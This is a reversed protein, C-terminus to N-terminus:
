LQKMIEKTNEYLKKYLSFYTDYVSKNNSDPSTNEKFKIWKKIDQSDHFVGTGLGALFADGLPAEVDQKTRKMTYGTVDAFIQTWIDSKAAGGVLYCESNLKMGTNEAYEMNHRLSYSVSEMFAKYLHRRKHYLNLGIITGKASSEWVPSREGMFYPLVIIGDSGPPIDKSEL